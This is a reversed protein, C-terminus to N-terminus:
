VKKINIAVLNNFRHGNKSTSGKHLYEVSVVDNLSYKDSVNQMIGRFEIYAIESINSSITLINKLLNGKTETEIKIIKGTINAM